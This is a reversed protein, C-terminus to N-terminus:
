DSGIHINNLVNNLVIAVSGEYALQIELGVATNSLNLGSGSINELGRGKELYLRV